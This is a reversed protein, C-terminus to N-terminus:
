GFNFGYTLLKHADIGKIDKEDGVSMIVLANDFHATPYPLKRGLQLSCFVFFHPYQEKDFKDPNPPVKMGARRAADLLGSVITIM